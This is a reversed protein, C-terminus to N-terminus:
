ECVERPCWLRREEEEEEENEEREQHLMGVQPKVCADRYVSTFTVARQPEGFCGGRAGKGEQNKERLDRRTEKVEKEMEKRSAEM